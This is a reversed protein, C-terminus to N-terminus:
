VAPIRLIAFNLDVSSPNIHFKRDTQIWGILAGLLFAAYGSAPVSYDTIDGTRKFPDASSIISFTQAAINDNRVLLLERGTAAIDNFNVADGAAWTIALDGAGVTGPYPGKPTQSTLPTRLM